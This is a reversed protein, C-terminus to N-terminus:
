HEHHDEETIEITPCLESLKKYIIYLGWLIILILLPSLANAWTVLTSEDGSRIGFLLYNLASGVICDALLLVVIGLLGAFLLYFWRIIYGCITM